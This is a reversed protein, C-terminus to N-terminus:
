NSTDDNPDTGAIVEELDSSGDGDSDSSDADTMWVEMEGRDSLGDGDSDATTAYDLCLQMSRNERDEIEILRGGWPESLSNEPGHTLNNLTANNEAPRICIKENSGAWELWYTPSDSVNDEYWSTSNLVGEIYVMKNVSYGWIMPGNNWSLTEPEPKPYSDNWHYATLVMRADGADWGVSVNIKLMQGAELWEDRASQFITKVKFNTSQYSAGDALYGTDSSAGPELSYAMYAYIDYRQETENLYDIPSSTIKEFLDQIITSSIISEAGGADICWTHRLGSWVLRGSWSASEGNESYNIMVNALDDDPSICAKKDPDDSAIWWLGQEDVHPIGELRVIKNEDYVWSSMDDWDLDNMQPIVSYDVLIEPGQAYIVYRLEREDYHIEGVLTVKSGAEIWYGTASSVYAKIQHKTNAYNPHDALYISTWTSDPMLTKTLYGEIRVTEGLYPEPDMSLETLSLNGPAAVDLIQVSGSGLAQIWIRGNYAIVDGTVSINSGITPMEGYQYWRVEVVHTDDEVIIDMRQDGQGYPDEVWSIVRGQVRVVENTHEVLDEMKVIDPEREIAYWNLAAVLLVSFFFMSWLKSMALGIEECAYTNSRLLM